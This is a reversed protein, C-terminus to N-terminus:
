LSGNRRAAWRLGQRTMREVAPAQLDKPLHGLAHYFVRGAGWRKTYAVPMEVGKLWPLPEGSFTTSALVHIAPDHHMYYQESAAQFDDVGETIEHDRDIIRVEYPVEVGEGGPHEIFSAGAMFSFPLSARFAAASGHWGVFGTGQAVAGLLSEEARETLDETTMAQTWGCVILDYSTLDSEFVHPDQTEDLQFGLEEMLPRAWEAVEYPFHGPFGGYLYLARKTSHNTM